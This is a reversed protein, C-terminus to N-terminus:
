YCNQFLYFFNQYKFKFNRLNNIEVYKRLKESSETDDLLAGLNAMNFSSITQSEYKDLIFLQDAYRKTLDRFLIM